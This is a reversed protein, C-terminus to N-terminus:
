DTAYFVAAGYGVVYGGREGTVDNSNTHYLMKARNAGLERAATMVVVVPGGGCAQAQGREIAEALGEPDYREIFGLTRADVAVCEEYSYGHYLDSSALFLLRKGRCVRALAEALIQCAQPSQDGMMVPLIKFGELVKQLFPLEVELSHERRHVQPM